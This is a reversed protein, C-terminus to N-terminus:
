FWVQEHLVGGRLVLPGVSEFFHLVDEMTMLGKLAVVDKPSRGHEKTLAVKLTRQSINYAGEKSVCYWPRPKGRPPQV